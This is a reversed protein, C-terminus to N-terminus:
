AQTNNNMMISFLDNFSVWSNSIKSNYKSGIDLNMINKLGILLNKSDYKKSAVDYKAKLFPAIYPKNTKPHKILYIKELEANLLFLIYTLSANTNQLYKSVKFFGNFNKNLLMDVLDYETYKSDESVKDSDQNKMLSKQYIAQSIALSNNFNFNILKNVFLENFNIKNIKCKNIVWQELIKGKLEYVEIVCTIHCLNKYFKTNKFSSPQRDVKIIVKNDNKNASATEIFKKLNPPISSSVVNITIVKKEDFLSLEEFNNKISDTQSDDDIVYNIHKYDLKTYFSLIDHEIENSINRPNGHITFLQIESTLPFRKFKIYDIIM